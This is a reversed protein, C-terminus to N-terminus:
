QLIYWYDGTYNNSPHTSSNCNYLDEIYNDGRAYRINTVQYIDCTIYAWLTIRSSKIVCFHDVVYEGRSGSKISDSNAAFVYVDHDPLPNTISSTRGETFHLMQDSVNAIEDLKDREKFAFYSNAM